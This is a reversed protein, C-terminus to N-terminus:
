GRSFRSLRPALYAVAEDPLLHRPIEGAALAERVATASVSRWRPDLDLWTVEGAYPKAHPAELCAELARRDLDGRGAVLLRASGFLEGLAREVDDYYRRDFIQPVKDMGAVFTIAADAPLVSRIAAAQEVYLGRNQLVAGLRERGACLLGLLELREAIPLGIADEKDITRTGLSFLVADFAHGRAALALELHARTPPNFAGPLVAVSRLPRSEVGLIRATPGENALVEAVVDLARQRHDVVERVDTSRLERDVSRESRPRDRHM